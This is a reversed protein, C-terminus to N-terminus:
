RAPALRHPGATTASHAAFDYVFQKLVPHGIFTEFGFAKMEAYAQDASWGDKTIRYVATMVGTRHRGGQCHVFVPQNAPDNVLALFQAVAAESPRDATTLPIRVFRMGALDVLHEEDARGGSTLDIVLHIGHAALAPYDASSPQAGRYYHADVQGFNDIRLGSWAVAGQAHVVPALGLGITLALTFSLSRILARM